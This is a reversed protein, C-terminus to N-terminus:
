SSVERQDGNDMAVDELFTPALTAVNALFTPARIEQREPSDRTVRSEGVTKAVTAVVVVM